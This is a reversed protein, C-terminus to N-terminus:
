VDLHGRHKLYAMLFRVVVREAYERNDCFFVPIQYQCAWSVYSGVAMAPTVLTRKPPKAFDKLDAEIVIAARDLLSLRELCHVFRRRSSGVCGYADPKSKREVGVRGEFGVLSYDGAGLTGRVSEYGEFEYPLQERTDIVIPPIKM